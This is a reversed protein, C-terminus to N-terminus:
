DSFLPTCCHNLSVHHGFIVGFIVVITPQLVYGGAPYWVNVRILMKFIAKPSILKFSKPIRWMLKRMSLM